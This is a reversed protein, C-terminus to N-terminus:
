AAAPIPTLAQITKQAQAIADAAKEQGMNVGEARIFEIDTIGLFGFVTRLYSEQHDLAALGSTDSYVGGRVSAVIVRKGGALGVPGNETYRFTQGSVAIRDIWAKLQSPVSFNYMPAGIVIIDAAKFEELFRQGAESEAANQGSLTASSLHAVPEADLNHYTVELAQAQQLRNVISASLLRSVSKEGTISADIHLLKMPKEKATHISDHNNDNLAGEMSYLNAAKCMEEDLDTNQM